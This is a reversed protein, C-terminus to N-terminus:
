TKELPVKTEGTTIIEPDRERAAAWPLTLLVLLMMLFESDGFNYEFLGAGMMAVLAGLGAAALYRPRDNRLKRWLGIAASVVFWFWVALAPLGREAAIQLPVNHLHPPTLDVANSQRYTPYIKKLLNPGVGTLPYRAVIEKGAELMAVRDRNTPDKLSFMSYARDTIAAPAVAIFLAAVVPLVALLRRDKLLLLLGVGACAGVWASRTFTLALAVVLAPLILAPWIWDRREYLLRAAASCIVLMLLGAYTMYHGLTGRPRQGLWDYNLVGYQFVGVIASIAGVTLIVQMVTTARRGGAISYTAPVVLFLLMQKAAGLSTFPELSFATAVLSVAAYALLAWFWPPVSPRERRVILSALWTVLTVALLSEAIAISFQVTAVFALLAILMVQDLRGHNRPATDETTM